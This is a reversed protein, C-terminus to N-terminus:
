RPVPRKARAKKRRAAARAPSLASPVLGQRKLEMAVFPSWEMLQKFTLGESPDRLHRLYADYHEERAKRCERDNLRLRHITDLVRRRVSAKLEPAPLVELSSLELIFWGDQVDFPDLVDEFVGKRANMLSCVLRFNSWEYALRPNQSKPALHEVTRSGTGPAIRVCLYSCIGGYADWLQGLCKRWLEPMKQPSRTLVKRGPRRVKADFDRPEPQPEVHIM